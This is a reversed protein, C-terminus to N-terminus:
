QTRTLWIAHPARAGNLEPSNLREALQKLAGIRSMYHLPCEIQFASNFAIFAEFVYQENWFRRHKVLWERPYDYPTFIDHIHVLTNVAVNPVWSEFLRQVDSGWKFVHSSDIFFIDAHLLADRDSPSIQQLEATIIRTCAANNDGRFYPDISVIEGPHGDVVNRELAAAAIWTSIGRGVETISAPKRSRILCYYYAADWGTYFWNDRGHKEFAPSAIYEAIYPTVTKEMNEIWWPSASFGPLERPEDIYRDRIYKLNPVPEYFHDGILSFGVSQAIPLTRRALWRQLANREALRGPADALIRKMKRLNM